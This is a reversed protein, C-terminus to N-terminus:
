VRREGSANCICIVNLVIAHINVTCKVSASQSSISLVAGGSQGKSTENLPYLHPRFASSSEAKSTHVWVWFVAPVFFVAYISLFSRYHSLIEGWQCICVAAKLLKTQPIKFERDAKCGSPCALLSCFEEGRTSM